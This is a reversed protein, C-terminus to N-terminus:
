SKLQAIAEIEILMEPSALSVVGVGTLAPRINGLFSHLVPVVKEMSDNLEGRVYIRVQLLNELSSGSAELVKKLNCLAVEAQGEYSRHQVTFEPSWDVQGSVFVLGTKQSVVAQSLGSVSGDYMDAPNVKLMANASNMIM